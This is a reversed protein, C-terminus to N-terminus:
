LAEHKEGRAGLSGLLSVRRATSFLAIHCEEDGQKGCYIGAADEGPRSSRRYAFHGRVGRLAGRLPAPTEVAVTVIPAPLALFFLKSFFGCRWSSVILSIGFDTTQGPGAEVFIKAFGKAKSRSLPKGATEGFGRSIEAVHPPVRGV